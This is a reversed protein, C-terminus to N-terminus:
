SGRGLGEQAGEIGRTTRLLLEECRHKWPLPLLPDECWNRVDKLRRRLHERNGAKEALRLEIEAAKMHSDYVIESNEVIVDRRLELGQRKIETIEVLEHMLLFPNRFVEDMTIVDDQITEAEFYAHLEGLEANALYGTDALADRAQQVARELQSEDM